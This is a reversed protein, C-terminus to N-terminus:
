IKVPYDSPIKWSNMEILSGCYRGAQCANMLTTRPALKYLKEGTVPDNAYYTQYQLMHVYPTDKSTDIGLEFIDRGAVNPGKPGNIDVVMVYNYNMYQLNLLITGDNLFIRTKESNESTTGMVTYTGGKPTKINQKYGLEQLNMKKTPKLTVLYPSIYKTLVSELIEEKNTPDKMEPWNSPIGYDASARYLVGNLVSVTKKLKSAVEAEKVNTSIINITIAAIIGIVALVILVEALTFGKKNKM